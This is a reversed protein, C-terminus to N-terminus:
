RRPIKSRPGKGPQRPAPRALPRTVDALLLTAQVLDEVAEALDAPPELTDIEALIDQADELDDPDLYRYVLALPEIIAHAQPGAARDLLAPFLTLATAFGAVWPFVAEVGDSPDELEFVWPDFWQRTAILHNLEQHRLRLLDRLASIDLGAPLPRADVDFVFPLWQEQPVQEPQLIVGCLYGDLASIDLPELPAPLQDLGQQVAERQEDTMGVFDPAAAVPASRPLSARPRSSHSRTM